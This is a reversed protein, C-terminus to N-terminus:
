KQSLEQMLPNINYAAWWHLYLVPFVIVNKAGQSRQLVWQELESRLILFHWHWSHWCMYVCFSTKRLLFPNWSRWFSVFRSRSLLFQTVAQINQVGQDANSLSCNLKLVSSLMSTGRTEPIWLQYLGKEWQPGRWRWENKRKRKRAAADALSKSRETTAAHRLGRFSQSLGTAM